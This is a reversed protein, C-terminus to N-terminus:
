ALFRGNETLMSIAINREGCLGMLSPSIGVRGFCVVGGLTHIPVRLKTESEVRVLLAEGERALYAGQTTVFLTNLHHIMVATALQSSYTALLPADTEVRAASRPSRTPWPGISIGSRGAPRFGRC